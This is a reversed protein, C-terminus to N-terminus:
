SRRAGHGGTRGVVGILHDRRTTRMSECLASVLHLVGHTTASDLKHQAQSHHRENRPRQMQNPSQWMGVREYNGFHLRERIHLHIGCIRKNSSTRRLRDAARRTSTGDSPVIAAGQYARPGTSWTHAHRARSRTFWLVAPEVM